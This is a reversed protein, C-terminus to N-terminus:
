HATVAQLADLHHKLKLLIAIAEDTQFPTGSFATHHLQLLHKVALSAHPYDGVRRYRKASHTEHLGLFGAALPLGEADAAQIFQERTLGGWASPEFWLGLKYLSVPAVSSSQPRNAEPSHGLEEFATALRSAERHRHKDHEALAAWQPRLTLAQMESLPYAENGRQTFLRVRAAQRANSVLVAGGRGASLPKSGGFSFTVIDGAPPIMAPSVNSEGAGGYRAPSQCADEILVVSQSQCVQSQCWNSLRQWDPTQGHLHSAIVAKVKSVPKVKSSAAIELQSPDITWGGPVVDVLVPTAGTVIVNKFNAEFDYAALLVEDGPGVGAGRLALEVAATGSSTLLPIRGPFRAELDAILGAHSEGHYVAWGDSALSHLM